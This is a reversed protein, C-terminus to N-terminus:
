HVLDVGLQKGQDVCRNRTRRRNIMKKVLEVIAESNGWKLMLGETDDLGIIGNEFCEIAFAVSGGASITDLGARNCLDNVTFIGVLDDNLLLHGFSACTEYEPRHTEELGAEPVKM